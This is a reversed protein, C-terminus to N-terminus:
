VNLELWESKVRTRAYKQGLAKACPTGRGPINRSNKVPGTIEKGKPRIKLKKKDSLSKKGM